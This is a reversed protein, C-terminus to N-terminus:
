RFLVNLFLLAKGILELSNHKNRIFYVIGNSVNAIRLYKHWVGGFYLKVSKSLINKFKFSKTFKQLFFM